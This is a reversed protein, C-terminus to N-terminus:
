LSAGARVPHVSIIYWPQRGSSEIVSAAHNLAAQMDIEKPCMVIRTALNTPRLDTCPILPIREAGEDDDDVVVWVSETGAARAALVLNAIEFQECDTSRALVVAVKSSM